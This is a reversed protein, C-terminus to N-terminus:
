SGIFCAPFEFRDIRREIFLHGTEGHRLRIVNEELGEITYEQYGTAPYGNVRDIITIILDGDQNWRGEEAQRWAIECRDYIRFESRFTGDASFEDIYLINLDHPQGEGYWMGVASAASASGNALITVLFASALLCARLPVPTV